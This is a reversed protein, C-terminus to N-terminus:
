LRMASEKFEDAIKNNGAQGQNESYKLLIEKVFQKESSAYQDVMPLLGKVFHVGESWKNQAALNVSLEAYRRGIKPDTPGSLKKEIEISTKLLDEAENFKGLQRKILALNYLRQSKLEDGLNGMDVNVLARYCAKEATVLDGSQEAQVCQEAYNDSTAKNVPNMCGALLFLILLVRIM